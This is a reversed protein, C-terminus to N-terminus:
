PGHWKRRAENIRARRERSIHISRRLSEYESTDVQECMMKHGRRVNRRFTFLGHSRANHMRQMWPLLKETLFVDKPGEGRFSWPTLLLVNEPENMVHTRAYDDLIITNEKSFGLNPDQFLKDLPKFYFEKDLNPRPPHDKEEAITIWPNGCGLLLEGEEYKQMPIFFFDKDPMVCKEIMKRGRNDEYEINECDELGFIHKPLPIIGRFLHYTVKKALARRMSSWVSINAFKSLELLFERCHPRTQVIRFDIYFKNKLLHYESQKAMRSETPIHKFQDSVCLVGNLDLIINLWKETVDSKFSPVRSQTSSVTSCQTVTPVQEYVNM